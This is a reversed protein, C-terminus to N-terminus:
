ASQELVKQMTVNVETTLTSTVAIEVTNEVYGPRTFVLQYIGAEVNKIEFVGNVSTKRTDSTNKLTVNVMELPNGLADVVLGTIALTRKGTRIVRRASFYNDYFVSDEFLRFFLVESRIGHIHHKPTYVRVPIKQHQPRPTNEGEM